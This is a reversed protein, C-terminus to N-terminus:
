NQLSVTGIHGWLSYTSLDGQWPYRGHPWLLPLFWATCHSRQVPTYGVSCWSFRCITINNYTVDIKLEFRCLCVVFVYLMSLLTRFFSGEWIGRRPTPAGQQAKPLNAVYCGWEWGVLLWWWVAPTPVWQQAKPLNAEYCGWEWGVWWWWGCSNWLKKGIVSM